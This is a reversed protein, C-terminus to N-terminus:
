KKKEKKVPHQKNYEKIIEETLSKYLSPDVQLIPATSEEFTMSCGERKAVDEVVGKIKGLIPEKFKKEEEQVEKTAEFRLKHLKEDESLNQQIAAERASASLVGKKKEFEADRTQKKKVEGMLDQEKKNYFQKWQESAEKGEETKVLAEQVNASCFKISSQVVPTPGSAFAGRFTLLGSVLLTLVLTMKLKTKKM